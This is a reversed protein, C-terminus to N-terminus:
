CSILDVVPSLIKPAFVHTFAATSTSPFRPFDPIPHHLFASRSVSHMLVWYLVVNVDDFPIYFAGIEHLVHRAGKNHRNSRCVEGQRAGAM